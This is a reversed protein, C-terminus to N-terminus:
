RRKEFCEFSLWRQDGCFKCECLVRAEVSIPRWSHHSLACLLRKVIKM